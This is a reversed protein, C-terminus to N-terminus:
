KKISLTITKNFNVTANENPYGIPNVHFKGLEIPTHTHGAIWAVIRPDNAEQVDSAFAYNMGTRNMTKYKQHILSLSPLHHTVVIFRKDPNADLSKRLEQLTSQHLERCDDPDFGKIYTYDNALMRIASDYENPINTWLTAGFVILDTDPIHYVENELFVVNKFKACSNRALQLAEYVSSMYYEHNGAIVFVTDFLKSLIEIFNGYKDTHPYGIDGAVICYPAQKKIDFHSKMNDSYMECHVDSFYQFSINNTEHMITMYISFVKM